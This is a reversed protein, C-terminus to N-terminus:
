KNKSGGNSLCFTSFSSFFPAKKMTYCVFLPVDCPCVGVRVIVCVCVCMTQHGQPLLQDPPHHPPICLFHQTFCLPPPMMPWDYQPARVHVCVHVCVCLVFLRPQPRMLTDAKMSSCEWCPRSPPAPPPPPSRLSLRECRFLKVQHHHSPPDPPPPPPPSALGINLSSPFAFTSSLPFVSLHPSAPYLLPFM